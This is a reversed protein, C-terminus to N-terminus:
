KKDDKKFDKDLGTQKFMERMNKVWEDNAQKQGLSKQIDEDKKIAQQARQKKINYQKEDVSNKDLDRLYQATQNNDTKYNTYGAGGQSYYKRIYGRTEEKLKTDSIEKFAKDRKIEYDADTSKKANAIEWEKQAKKIDNQVKEDTRVYNYATQYEGSSEFAEMRQKELINTNAWEEEINRLNAKNEAIRRNRDVTAINQSRKNMDNAKNTIRTGITKGGFIGVKGKHDGTLASYQKNAQKKWQNGKGQFGGVAGSALGGMFSGGYRKAAIAGGLAGTAFGAVGGALGFTGANLKDMIGLKMNGSSIGLVESLLKPAQKGFTVIGMIIIMKPFFGGGPIELQSINSALFVVVFLIIMRVFVEMFTTLTVKIWNNFIKNNPLIRCLVPIPAIMEYFALKVARLGLDLCFSFIMYLLFFGVITSIIPMYTIEDNSIVESFASLQSFDGNTIVIARFEGWYLYEDTLNYGITAVAENVVALGCAAAAVGGTYPLGASTAGSSFPVSVLNILFLAGGGICAIPSVTSSIAKYTGWGESWDAVVDNPEGDGDTDNPYIFANMVSFALNNGQQEVVTNQNSVEEITYSEQNEENYLVKDSVSTDVNDSTGLFIKGIINDEIVVNQITYMFNFVTPLLAILIISTVVNLLVKPGSFKGKVAEDPNVISILLSYTVLFLAVVGALIYVRNVFSSIVSEPFFGGSIEALEVFLGFLKAVLGYVFSDILLCFRILGEEISGWM